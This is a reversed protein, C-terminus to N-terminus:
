CQYSITERVSLTFNFAYGCLNDDYAHLIEKRRVAGIAQKNRSDKNLNTIFRYFILQLENLTTLYRETAEENNAIDTTFDCLGSVEGVIEYTATVLGNQYITDTPNILHIWIRPYAPSEINAYAKAGRGYHQVGDTAEAVEKLMTEVIRM